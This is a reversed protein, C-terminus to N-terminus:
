AATPNTSPNITYRTQHQGEPHQAELVDRQTGFIRKQGQGDHQDTPKHAQDDGAVLESKPSEFTVMLGSPTRVRESLGDRPLRARMRPQASRTTPKM